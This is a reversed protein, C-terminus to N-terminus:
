SSTGWTRAWPAQGSQWWSELLNKERLTDMPQWFGEHRFANLEGEKALLPLTEGEFSVNDGNIMGIIEPNLVFYGGNIWSSQGEIKEAFGIVKDGELNIAGFRGPPRVATVTARMGSKQHNELLLDLSVDCLGDGYTMFFPEEGDLYDSVRRVRGATETQSGTDILTVRWPESGARHVETSGRRFDVTIDATLYDYNLFFEKIQHGKYGLCVIFDNHGYHSFTKMIHWLIPRGGIEVLPKPRSGTEESLRTGLGGALLVTKM